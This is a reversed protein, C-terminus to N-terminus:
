LVQVNKEALARYQDKGTYEYALWLMGTWFGNTWETNPMAAYREQVTSPEPCSEGLVKINLDLHRVVNDLANTVAHIDVAGANFFRQANTLPEIKM